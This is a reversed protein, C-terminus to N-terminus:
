KSKLNLYHNALITDLAVEVGLTTETNFKPPLQRTASTLEIKYTGGTVGYFNKKRAKLAEPLDTQSVSVAASGDSITKGTAPKVAEGLYAEPILRVEAGDLPKGDLAIFITLPRFGLGQESWQKLRAEIEEASVQGNADKDYHQKAMLIGPVAVLEEEDLSGDDNSDYTSIAAAAADAPDVDVAGVRKPGASCGLSILLAVVILSSLLHTNM